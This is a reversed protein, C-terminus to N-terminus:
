LLKTKLKTLIETLGLIRKIKKQIYKIKLSIKKIIVLKIIIFLYMKNRSFINLNVKNPHNIFNFM